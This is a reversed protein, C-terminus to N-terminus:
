TEAKQSAKFPAKIRNIVVGFDEGITGYSDALEKRTTQPFYWEYAVRTAVVGICFLAAGITMLILLTARNPGSKKLPPEAWEIVTLRPTSKEREMDSNAKYQMLTLFLQRHFFVERSLRETELKLQPDDGKLYNRNNTLFETEREEAERLKNKAEELREQLYQGVRAAMTRDLEQKYLDLQRVFTNAIQSSLKPTKSVVEVSLVGTKMTLDFTAMSRLKNRVTYLDDTEFVEFLNGDIGRELDTYQHALVSDTVRHGELLEKYLMSEMTMRTGVKAALAFEEALPNVSGAQGDAFGGFVPIVKATATYNDPTLVLAVTSGASIIITFMYIFKRRKRLKALLNNLFGFDNEESKRLYMMKSMSLDERIDVGILFEAVRRYQYGTAM